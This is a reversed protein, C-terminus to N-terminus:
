AQNDQFFSSLVFNFFLCVQMFSYELKDMIFNQPPLLIRLLHKLRQLHWGVFHDFVSLCNKPAWFTLHNPMM